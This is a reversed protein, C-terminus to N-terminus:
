ISKFVNLNQNVDEYSIFLMNYLLNYSKKLFEVSILIQDDKSISVYKTNRIYDALNTDAYNGDQKRLLVSNNHALINRIKNTMRFEEWKDESISLSIDAVVELYKKSCFVGKDRLDSPSLPIIKINKVLYCLEDFKKEFEGYSKLLLSSWITHRWNLYETKEDLYTIKDIGILLRNESSLQSDRLLNSITNLKEDLPEINENIKSEISSEILDVLQDFYYHRKILDSISRSIESILQIM